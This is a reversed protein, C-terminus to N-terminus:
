DAQNFADLYAQYEIAPVTGIRQLRHLLQLFFFSLAQEPSSVQTESLANDDDYRIDFGGSSIVCGIDIQEDPARERICSEFPEGYAPNWSSETALIGGLIPTLPRPDHEGGAHVIPASTRNLKRVSSVKQGAYEINRKDLTQKVELAAYLGEAPIVKQGDVNYLEPTYQRDYIVIDIQESQTGESDVVFAKEAQYRTPLHDQLVKLWKAETGDGTAGPHDIVRRSVNLGATLQAQLGEYAQTM